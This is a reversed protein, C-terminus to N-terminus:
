TFLFWFVVGDYCNRAGYSFKFLELITGAISLGLGTGKTNSRSKDLKKYPQWIESLDEEPIESGSNFFEFLNDSIKIRIKGEDPTNNLANTFFNDIVRKLLGPDCSIVADGELNAIIKREDCIQKYTNIVESCLKNLSVEEYEILTTESELKSLDLIQRIIKDMREVNNQINVAYYDKKDTHINEILSQSYGSIISLPTKLDHALADTMEKRYNILEDRKKITKDTQRALIIAVILFIILSGIWVFALTVGLKKLLNEERAFVIWFESYYTGDDLATVTNKYPHAYYYHYTLLGVREYSVDLVDQSIKQLKEKDLVKNRLLRQTKTDYMIHSGMGALNVHGREFYPLDKTNDKYRSYYVLRDEMKGDGVIVNGRDDFKAAVTPTVNIRQPIVMEGDLWFGELGLSYQYVEGLKKPKPNTRLYTELEKVEKESFWDKPNLYAYGIYSENGKKYEAFGIEWYGNTNFIVEYEGTYLAVETGLNTLLSSWGILKRRLLPIDIPQNQSDINDQLVEELISNVQLAHTKLSGSSIKKEQRVLFITFGFMLILYAALFASITRLYIRKKNEEKNM